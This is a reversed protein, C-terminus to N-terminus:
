DRPSRRSARAHSEQVHAGCYQSRRSSLVAKGTWRSIWPLRFDRPLPNDCTLSELRRYPPSRKPPLRHALPARLIPVQTRAQCLCRLNLHLLPAPRQLLIRRPLPAPHLLPALRHLPIRRQLLTPRSRLRRRFRARATRHLCPHTTIRHAQGPPNGDPPKVDTRKLRKRQTRHFRYPRSCRLM